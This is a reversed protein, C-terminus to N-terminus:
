KNRIIIAAHAQKSINVRRKIKNGTAIAAQADKNKNKVPCDSITIQDTNKATGVNIYM